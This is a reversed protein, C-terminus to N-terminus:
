LVKLFGEKLPILFLSSTTFEKNLIKRIKRPITLHGNRAIKSIVELM